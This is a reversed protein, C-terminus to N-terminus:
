KVIFRNLEKIQSDLDMMLQYIHIFQEDISTNNRKKVILLYDCIELFIKYKSLIVGLINKFLSIELKFFKLCNNKYNQRSIRLNKEFRERPSFTNEYANILAHLINDEDQFKEIFLEKDFLYPNNKIEIKYNVLYDSDKIFRCVKNDADPYKLLFHMVDIQTHISYNYKKSAFDRVKNLWMYTSKQNELVMNKSSSFNIDIRTAKRVINKVEVLQNSQNIEEPSCFDPNDVLKYGLSNYAQAVLRSCFQFQNNSTKLPDRKMVLLADQVSYLSGIKSRLFQELVKEESSTLPEKLRLVKLDNKEEVLLRQPNLSFIGKKEAHIISMIEVCIMAHSYNSNTFQQIAKSHSKKGSELIIDGPKLEKYNLIFKKGQTVDHM